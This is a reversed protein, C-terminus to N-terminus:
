AAVSVSAPSKPRSATKRGARASPSATGGAEAKAGPDGRGPGKLARYLKLLSYDYAGNLLERVGAVNAWGLTAFAGAIQQEEEPTILRGLEVEEGSEAAIALHALVTSVALRRSAAIEAADEGARYRTLSERASVGVAARGVVYAPAERDFVQKGASSVHASIEAMFVAGFEALKAEGVGSIRRFAGADEPYERAMQRLAVDSFIM